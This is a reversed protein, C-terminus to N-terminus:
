PVRGLEAFVYCSAGVRRGDPDRFYLTFPTRDEIPIRRRSLEQELQNQESRSLAFAVLELSRPSPEPEQEAALELMIVTDGAGLWVSRGPDRRLVALKLLEVYFAELEALRRSRFALHHLRM